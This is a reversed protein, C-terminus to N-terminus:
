FPYELISMEINIPLAGINKFIYERAHALSECTTPSLSRIERIRNNTEDITLEVICSM